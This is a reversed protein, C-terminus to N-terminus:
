KTVGFGLEFLVAIDKLWRTPIDKFTCNKASNLNAIEKLIDDLSVIEFELLDSLTFNDRILKVSPHNDFKQIAADIPNTSLVQEDSLKIEDIALKYAANEFFNSFTETVKTENLLLKSKGALSIKTQAMVKNSLFPNITRWFEKNNTISNM